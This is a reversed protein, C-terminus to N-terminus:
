KNAHYIYYYNKGGFILALFVAKINSILSLISTIESIFEASFVCCLTYLSRESVYRRYNARIMRSQRTKTMRLMLAMLYKDKYRRISASDLANGSRPADSRVYNAIGSIAQRRLFPRGHNGRKGLSYIRQRDEVPM